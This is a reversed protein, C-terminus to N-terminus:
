TTGFAEAIASDWGKRIYIDSDTIVPFDNRGSVPGAKTPTDPQGLGGRLIKRDELSLATVDVGLGKIRALAQRRGELYYSEQKRDMMRVVNM